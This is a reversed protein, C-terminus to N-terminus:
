APLAEPLYLTQTWALRCCDIGPLGLAIREISLSARDPPEVSRRLGWRQGVLPPLMPEANHTCLLGGAATALELLGLQLDTTRDSLLCYLHCQASWAVTHPPHDRSGDVGLALLDLLLAPTLLESEAEGDPDLPQWPGYQRVRTGFHARLTALVADTFAALTTSEIM